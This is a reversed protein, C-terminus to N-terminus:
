YPSSWVQYTMLVGVSSLYALIEMSQGPMYSLRLVSIDICAIVVFVVLGRGGHDM